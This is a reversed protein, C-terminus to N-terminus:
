SQSASPKPAPTLPGSVRTMSVGSAEAAAATGPTRSATAAVGPTTSTVGGTLLGDPAMATAWAKGASEGCDSRVSSSTRVRRSSTRGAAASPEPSAAWTPPWVAEPTSKAWTKDARSGHNMPATRSSLKMRSSTTNRETSTGSLATTIFRSDM